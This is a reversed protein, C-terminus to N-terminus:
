LEKTCMSGKDLEASRIQTALVTSAANNRLPQSVAKMSPTEAFANEEM